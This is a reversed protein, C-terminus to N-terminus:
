FTSISNQSLFCHKSNIYQPFSNAADLNPLPTGQSSKAMKAFESTFLIRQAALITSMARFIILFHRSHVKSWDYSTSYAFLRGNGSFATSSIPAGLPGTADLKQKSDKDWFIISGDAGGTAFTGYVPHFAITNVAYANQGDRHCKFNFNLHENKADIWQLGVRGDISGIAYGSAGPYCGIARTQWKLPSPQTKFIQGPSALNILCVHREACGVVLLGQNLSTYSGPVPNADFSVDMAYAREPLAVSLIPGPSRLDWYKLQRDWGASALIQPGGSAGLTTLWRLCSIPQDHANPLPMTTGTTVDLLKISKDGGASAIKTGDWSWHTALVPADHQISAKPVCSRTNANVEYIRTQNDWSATSIYDAVPSFAVCSVGDTAAPNLEMDDKTNVVM